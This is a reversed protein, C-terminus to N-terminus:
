AWNNTKLLLQYKLEIACSTFFWKYRKSSKLLMDLGGPKAIDVM